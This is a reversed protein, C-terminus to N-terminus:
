AIKKKNLKNNFNYPIISVDSLKKKNPLDYSIIKFNFKKYISIVREYLNKKLFKANAIDLVIKQFNNKYLKYALNKEDNLSKVIFLDKNKKLNSYIIKKDGSVIWTVNQKLKKKLIDLRKFHGLGINKAIHVRFALNM